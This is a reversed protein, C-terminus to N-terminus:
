RSTNFWYSLLIEFLNSILRSKSILYSTALFSSVVIWIMEIINGKKNITKRKEPAIPTHLSDTAPSFSLPVIAVNNIVGVLLLWIAIPFISDSPIVEKTEASTLKKPRINDSGFNIPVSKENWAYPKEVIIKISTKITIVTNSNM